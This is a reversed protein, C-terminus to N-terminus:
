RKLIVNGSSAPTVNISLPAVQLPNEVPVQHWKLQDKDAMPIEELTPHTLPLYIPLKHLIWVCKEIFIIKTKKM